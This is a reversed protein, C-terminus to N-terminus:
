KTSTPMSFWYQSILSGNSIMFYLMKGQKILFVFRRCDQIVLEAFVHTNDHGCRNEM